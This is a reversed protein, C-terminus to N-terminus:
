GLIGNPGPQKSRIQAGLSKTDTLDVTVILVEIAAQPQKADLQRIIKEAKIYDDYHGKILLRNTEKEAIFLMPRMYQDTGRVGGFEKQEETGHGFSTVIM